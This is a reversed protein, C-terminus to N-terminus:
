PLSESTRTCCISTSNGGTSVPLPTVVASKSMRLGHRRPAGRKRKRKSRGRAITSTAARHTINSRPADRSPPSRCRSSPPPAAGDYRFASIPFPNLRNESFSSRSRANPRHHHRLLSWIILSFPLPTQPPTLPTSLLTKKTVLSIIPSTIETKPDDLVAM